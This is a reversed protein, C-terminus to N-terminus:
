NDTNDNIFLFLREHGDHMTNNVCKCIRTSFTQSTYCQLNYTKNQCYVSVIDSDFCTGNALLTEVFPAPLARELVTEM